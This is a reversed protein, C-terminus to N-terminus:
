QEFGWVQCALWRAQQECFAKLQWAGRAEHLMDPHRLCHHAFEHGATSVLDDEGKEKDLWIFRRRLEGSDPPESMAWGWTDFDRGRWEPSDFVAINRMRLFARDIEPLRQWAKWVATKVIESELHAFLYQQDPLIESNM